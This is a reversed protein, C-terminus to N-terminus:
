PARLEQVVGAAIAQKIAQQMANGMIENVEELSEEIVIVGTLTFLITKEAQKAKPHMKVAASGPQPDNEGDMFYAIDRIANCIVSPKVLVKRRAASDPRNARTFEVMMGQYFLGALEM